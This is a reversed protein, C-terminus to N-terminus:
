EMLQEQLWEILTDYNENLAMVYVEDIADARAMKEVERVLDITNPYKVSLNYITLEDIM